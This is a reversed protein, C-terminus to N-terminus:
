SVEECRFSSPVTDPTVNGQLLMIGTGKSVQGDDIYFYLYGSDGNVAYSGDVGEGDSRTSKILRNGYAAVVDQYSSGGTLGTDLLPPNLDGSVSIKSVVDQDNVYIYVIPASDLSTSNNEHLMGTWNFIPYNCPDMDNRVVGEIAAVEASSMGLRVPGFGDLGLRWDAFRPDIDIGSDYTPPVSTTTASDAVDSSGGGGVSGSVTSVVVIVVIASVVVSLYGFVLGAVALGHGREKTRRIQSLSVHGLVIGVPAFIFAMVLSLVALTNTSGPQPGTPGPEQSRADPVWLPWGIPAPGWQPDPEWGSPPTWGDRPVPWNPPPNFQM